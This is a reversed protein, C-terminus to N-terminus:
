SHKRKGKEFAMAWNNAAEETVSRHPSGSMLGEYNSLAGSVELGHSGIDYERLRKDHDSGRMKLVGLVKRISSEIEVQKLMIICDVLFSSADSLFGTEGAGSERILVSSLGRAKLLMILRYLERRLEEPKAYMALYSISDIVIRRPRIERIPDALVTEGGDNEILLEPSTCVIRLKNKEELGQLDWGFSRADRYIQTPLQEFSLYIGNEEGSLAGNVLFQLALTTKGTGARGNLLVADGKLFGGHLMIDLERIGTESRENGPDTLHNFPAFLAERM